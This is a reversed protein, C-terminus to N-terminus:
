SWLALANTSCWIRWAFLATPTGAHQSASRRRQPKSSFSSRARRQLVMGSTPPQELCARSARSERPQRHRVTVRRHKANARSRQHHRDLIHRHHLMLIQYHGRRRRLATLLPHSVPLHQNLGLRLRPRSPRTPPTPMPTSLTDTSSSYLQMRTRPCNCM